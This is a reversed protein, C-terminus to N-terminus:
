VVSGAAVVPGLSFGSDSVFQVDKLYFSTFVTFSWTAAELIASLPVNGSFAWSAAAGCVGHAHFSSASRSSGSSSVFASSASSRSASPTSSSSSALSIVSRIFFSLANKSLPRSPNRSSVFLSHPRSPLSSTRSLYVQLAWVPCLLLEEPLSGVFDRLSWVHFSRPLPRVMSESLYSLFLDDGSSSVSASVEQLEGVCRATALSVLFLVKCSLDRLSASSLPEFPPGRLSELVRLLDWPPVRFLFSFPAGPSLFPSSRSACLSLVTRSSCLSVGWEVHLPLLRYLLLLSFPFPSCLSSFGGGQSDFTLFGLPWPSSVM